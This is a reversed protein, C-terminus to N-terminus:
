GYINGVTGNTQLGVRCISSNSMFQCTALTIQLTGIRTMATLTRENLVYKRRNQCHVAPIYLRHVSQCFWDRSIGDTASQRFWNHSIGDTASQRFWDNSIGDTMSQSVFDTTVSAMLQTSVSSILRSQHWWDHLSQCFWVHSIGDTTSRSVFDTTVSAMLRVVSSILRWQHWWNHLSQRFWDHSIGDTTSRSVFDTTVSAMLRVVSSILWSQHWWDNVSQRFWDHNIEDTTKQYKKELLGSSAETSKLAILRNLASFMTCTVFIYSIPSYIHVFTVCKSQVGWLLTCHLLCGEPVIDKEM